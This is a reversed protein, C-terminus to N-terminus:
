SDPSAQEASPFMVVNSQQTESPKTNETSGEGLDEANPDPGDPSTTPNTETSCVENGINKNEDM